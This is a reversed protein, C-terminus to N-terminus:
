KLLQIEEINYEIDETYADSYDRRSSLAQKDENKFSDRAKELNSMSSYVGIMSWPLDMVNSCERRRLVYLSELKGYASMEVQKKVIKPLRTKGEEKMKQRYEIAYKRMSFAGVILDYGTEWDEDLLLLYINKTNTDKTKTM